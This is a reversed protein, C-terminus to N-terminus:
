RGVERLGEVFFLIQDRVPRLPKSSDVVAFKVSGPSVIKASECAARILPFERESAHTTINIIDITEGYLRKLREEQTKPDVTLLIFAWGGKSSLMEFENLYRLDDVVYRHSDLLSSLLSIAWFDASVQQRMGEGLFQLRSRQKPGEEIPMKRCKELLSLYTEFMRDEQSLSIAHKGGLQNRYGCFTSFHAYLYSPVSEGRLEKEIEKLAGAFSARSYEAYHVLAEAVSSKGSGMPGSIAINM